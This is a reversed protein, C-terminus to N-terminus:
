GQQCYLPKPQARRPHSPHPNDPDMPDVLMPLLRICELLRPTVDQRGPYALDIGTVRFGVKHEVQDEVGIEELLMATVPPALLVLRDIRHRFRSRRGKQGLPHPRQVHGIGFHRLLVRLTKTNRSNRQPSLGSHLTQRSRRAQLTEPRIGRM